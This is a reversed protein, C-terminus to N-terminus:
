ETRAREWLAAYGGTGFELDRYFQDKIEKRVTIDSLENRTNSHFFQDTKWREFTEMFGM